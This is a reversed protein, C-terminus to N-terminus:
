ADNEDEEDEDSEDFDGYPDFYPEWYHKTTRLYVRRLLPPGAFSFIQSLVRQDLGGVVVESQSTRRMRKARVNEAATMRASVVSLFALKVDRPLKAPRDISKLHHKKLPTAYKRHDTLLMVDLYALHRNVTLMRRLAQMDDPLKDFAYGGPVRKWNKCKDNLRFRLRRVLKSLPNTKDSLDATIARVDNWHCQPLEPIPLNNYRYDSFDLQVDVIGGCLSLSHLNPCNRIIVNEDIDQRPGDLILEKLTSGIAGLFQPLGGSRPYTHEERNFGITLTKLAGPRTEIVGSLDFMLDDRQVHCRGLGPIMANMWESDGDDSFTRVCRIAADTKILKVREDMVPQGRSFCWRISSGSKLTANREDVVGPPTGCLVEEPHDSNLVSLFAEMDQRFNEKVEHREHCIDRGGPSLTMKSFWVNDQRVLKQLKPALSPFGFSDTREAMMPGLEFTCRIRRSEVASNRRRLYNRWQEKITKEANFISSFQRGHRGSTMGGRADSFAVQIPIKVDLGPKDRPLLKPNMRAAIDRLGTLFEPTPDLRQDTGCFFVLDNLVAGSGEDFPDGGRSHGALHAFVLAFRPPIEQELEESGKTGLKLGWIKNLVFKWAVQDVHAVAAVLALAERIERLDYLF